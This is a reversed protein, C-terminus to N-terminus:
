GGNATNPMEGTDIFQLRKAVSVAQDAFREYFRALLALNAATRADHTWDRGTITALLRAHLADVEDDRDNVEAVGNTTTGAVLDRVQEAMGVTLRGLEAFTERLEAPVAPEPHTLRVTEAVHKALDGMREIKEACYLSSLVTRLESAVPAQLALLSQAREECRARERDLEADASVVREAGTVDVDLLAQTARRMAEGAWSCMGALQDGLEALQGHFAERM